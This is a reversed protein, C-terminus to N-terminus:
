IISRTRATQGTSAYCDVLRRVLLVRLEVSLCLWLMIIWGVFICGYWTFYVFGWEAWGVDIDGRERVDM